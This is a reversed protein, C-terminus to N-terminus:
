VNGIAQGVKILSGQKVSFKFSEPAEFVLVITSGLSFAGVEDGKRLIQGDLLGHTGYVIEKHCKRDVRNTKLEQDFKILISGVNTAGVPTMSFFGYRWKGLLAVRENLVFLDALKGAMWPSVSFLEGAFHRRREVKWDAPSHFRHYDGPALYVVFFFMRNGSQPNCELEGRVIDTHVKLSSAIGPAGTPQSSISGDVAQRTPRTPSGMLEDVSYPIDNINAFQKESLHTEESSRNPHNNIPM